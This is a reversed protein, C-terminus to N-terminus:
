RISCVRGFPNPQRVGENIASGALRRRDLEHALGAPHGSQAEQDIEVPNLRELMIMADGETQDALFKFSMPSTLSPWIDNPSQVSYAAPM